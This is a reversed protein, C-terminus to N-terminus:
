STGDLDGKLFRHFARARTVLEDTDLSESCSHLTMHLAALRVEFAKQDAKAVENLPNFEEPEPVNGRLIDALTIFRPEDRDFM